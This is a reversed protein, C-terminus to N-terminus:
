WPRNISISRAWKSSPNEPAKPVAWAVPSSRTLQGSRRNRAPAGTIECEVYRRLDHTGFREISIVKASTEVVSWVAWDSLEEGAVRGKKSVPRLLRGASHGAATTWIDMLLKIWMPITVTRIRGGKGTPDAIM